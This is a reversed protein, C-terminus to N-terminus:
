RVVCDFTIVGGESSDVPEEIEWRLIMSGVDNPEASFRAGVSSQQSGEIYDLRPSLSDTIVVNGLPKVGANDFRIAFSVIDGSNAITHSAVKCVRMTCKDPTEYLVLDEPAQTDKVVLAPQNAIEVALSEPIVWTEANQVLQRIDILEERTILGSRRLDVLEFPVRAASMRSLPQVQDIPLGANKDQFADILGVQLEGQPAVPGVMTGALNKDDFREAALPALIRETGIAMTSLQLGSVQRVAGFRPAYIAVRNTPQECVQGGLTEYYIVTDTPNLGEVTWDQKVVVTPDLDGGDFIFEQANRYGAQQAVAACSCGQSCAGQPDFCSTPECALPACQEGATAPPYATTTSAQSVQSALGAAHSDTTHSDTAHSAAVVPAATIAPAQSLTSPQATSMAPQMHQRSLPNLPASLGGMSGCGPLGLTPLLLLGLTGRRLKASWKATSWNSRQLMWRRPLGPYSGYRFNANLQDQPQV